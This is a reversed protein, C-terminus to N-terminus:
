KLWRSLSWWKKKESDVYYGSSEYGSYDSYYYYRNGYGEGTFKTTYYRSHLIDEAFANLVIVTNNLNYEQAIRQPITASYFKSKGSRIVFINIDSLRILPISDSVLGIPATDIMVVDYITSLYKVLQTMKETHLLESPNPPVPGSVMFDLNEQDSKLIIEDLTSQNSLYTSLGKDNPVRFTQHLRSRRLDAAILIVKKDILSLTSSLNVTVFSKGEGAVESTVCIVKSQKESALFNLNTRVSRVSEAFISKPKSLALVQVNDEDIKEPFKRIVGIIPISTLSEITEKDYIYPNLVRILIILGLGVGLGLIIATRHISRENPSVPSYNPQAQEVITASPLIGARGIQSELKKESLFSYVKENIEFSRQLDISQREAVPFTAIRQNVESLQGNLFSLTRKIRGEASALIDLANSKIRLINRNIEEIPASTPTYTKLLDTRQNLLKDLDEVIKSIAPADQDDAANFNLTLNNKEKYIQEKLQNIALLQLKLLSQQSEVDKAKTLAAEASSSVEMLKNKQKFNQISTASGKVANSLYSLQEDIFNIMQSASQTKRNRDNILYEKMINNLVDAAFRPNADTLSLYIVNSNKVAEGARLGGQVRGVFDEPSNFKFLYVSKKNVNSHAISFSTTAITVPTNYNYNKSVEAGGVKYTLNYERNNIPKFTIVDRYFNLTDLQIIKINLPKEPYLESTRVRGEVFFSIPYNLDKIARLVVARSQLISTESLIRNVGRETTPLANSLDALESRREELKMTGGTAYIKPTYWLYLNSGLVFFLLSGVIWYWRSILIKGIKFYDIEQNPLKHSVVETEEM